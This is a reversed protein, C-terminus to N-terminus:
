RFAGLLPSTVRFVEKNLPRTTPIAIEGRAQRLWRRVLRTYDFSALHALM